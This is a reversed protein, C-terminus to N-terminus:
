WGIKGILDTREPPIRKKLKEFNGEDLWGEFVADGIKVWVNFGCFMMGDKNKVAHGRASIDVVEGPPIDKLENPVVPPEPEPRVVKPKKPLPRGALFDEMEADSEFADRPIVM